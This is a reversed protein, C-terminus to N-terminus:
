EDYCQVEPYISGSFLEIRSVIEPYIDRSLRLYRETARITSHGVYASLIPLSCYLDIDNDSMQKISHCCFTHRVDHLRPGKGRGMYSIGCQWMTKRFRKNVTGKGRTGGHKKRFFFEDGSFGALFDKSYKRCVSTLNESMPVLRKKDYKANKISIIGRELDVDKIKLSLAEGIRLGCGYLVRFLVPYVTDSNGCKDKPLADIVKFIRGIEDHSFIYPIFHENKAKRVPEPISAQYGLGSLYIGFQRIVSVRGSLTSRSEYEKQRCWLDIINEDLVATVVGQEKLHKDFRRLLGPEANYKYGAARKFGVFEDILDTFPTKKDM